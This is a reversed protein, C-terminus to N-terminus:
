ELIWTALLSSSEYNLKWETYLRLPLGTLFTAAKVGVKRGVKIIRRFLLDHHGCKESM